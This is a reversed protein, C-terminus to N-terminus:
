IESSEKPFLIQYIKKIMDLMGPKSKLQNICKNREEILEYYEKEVLKIQKSLNILKNFIYITDGEKISKDLKINLEKKEKEEIAKDAVEVLEDLTNVEAKRKNTNEKNNKYSKDYTVESKIKKKVMNNDKDKNEKTDSKNKNKKDKKHILEIQREHKKIDKSLKYISIGRCDCCFMDNNDVRVKCHRKIFQRVTERKNTFKKEHFKCRLVTCYFM